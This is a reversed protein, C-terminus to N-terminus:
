WVEVIIKHEVLEMKKITGFITKREGFIDEIFISGDEKPIVVEGKWGFARRYWKGMHLYKSWVSNKEGMNEEIEKIINKM